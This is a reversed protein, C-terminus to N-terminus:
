LDSHKFIFQWIREFIWPSLPNSNYVDFCNKWWALSKNLILQKHIIHHAGMNFTVPAINWPIHIKPMTDIIGCIEKNYYGKPNPNDTYLTGLPIWMLKSDFNNVQNIFDCCHPFPNGQCFTIYESLNNYNNLIHTLYTHGERGINELTISDQILHGGKNYIIYKCNLKPVWDLDEYCRAIVVINNM